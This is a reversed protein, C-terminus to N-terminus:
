DILNNSLFSYYNNNGVILHDLLKIDFFRFAKNLVNTLDIDSISPNVDGSPHNHILFVGSAKYKLAHNVVEKTDVYLISVNGKLKKVSILSCRANVYLIILEETFKGSLDYKIYNFVDNSNKLLIDKKEFTYIRKSFELFAVLTAAKTQKIGKVQMWDDFSMNVIDSLGNFESIIRKSFELISEGKIGTNLLVALLEYDELTEVGSKIIKERPMLEM